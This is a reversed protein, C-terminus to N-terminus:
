KGRKIGRHKAQLSELFLLNFFETANIISERSSTERQPKKQKVLKVILLIENDGFTQM